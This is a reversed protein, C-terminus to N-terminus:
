QQFEVVQHFKSVSWFIAVEIWAGCFSVVPTGFVTCNHKCSSKADCRQRTVSQLMLVAVPARAGSVEFLPFFILNFVAEISTIQIVWFWLIRIHKKWGQLSFDLWRAPSIWIKVRSDCAQWDFHIDMNYVNKSSEQLYWCKERKGEFIDIEFEDGKCPRRTLRNGQNEM